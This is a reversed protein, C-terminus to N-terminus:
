VESVRKLTEKASTLFRYARLGNASACEHFSMKATLRDNSYLYDYSILSVTLSLQELM